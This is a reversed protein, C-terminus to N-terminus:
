VNATGLCPVKPTVKKLYCMRHMGCHPLIAFNLGVYRIKSTATLGEPPPPSIRDNVEWCPASFTSPPVEVPPTISHIFYLQLSRNVICGLHSHASLWAPDRRIQAIRCNHCTDLRVIASIGTLTDKLTDCFGTDQHWDYAETPTLAGRICQM